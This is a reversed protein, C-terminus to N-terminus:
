GPPFERLWLELCLLTWLRGDHRMRGTTHEAALRRIAERDFLTASRATPALLLDELMPRLPGRLWDGVPLDFGRKRRALISPPLVDGAARKLLLKSEQGDLKFRPPVRAMFEFVVHDLLPSRVELSTFMSARDVKVLIDGPLYGVLDAYQLQSLYGLAATSELIAAREADADADGFASRTSHRYLEARRSRDFYEEALGWCTPPQDAAGLYRHIRGGPPFARALRAVAPCLARPLLAQLRTHRYARRYWHYGAFVEDGGDGSLAVTVARRAMESVYYTPIMSNDAFPEDFHRVLKPLIGIIDPKVVEHVHETRCHDAVTRAFPSEDHREEEFGISFTKVPRPSLRSMLGVVISSDIGGSLFAGLPVDSIMRLRVAELLLSRLEDALQEVPKAHHEPAPYLQPRWYEILQARGDREVTLTHGPPLKRIARYISRPARIYGTSLYEDLAAFDLHLPVSPHQRLCKLESGFVLKERDLAYYLPKKGFRDVALTMRQQARDWAAFAFMGRFDRVCAAGHEEYSHVITETDGHTRFDHRPLLRDRLEQFNYIEGNFVLRVSGDENPMPQHSAALDIISLRRFGLGVGGEHFLGEEDPGRHTLQRTMRALLDTGVPEHPAFQWIGCIGCM